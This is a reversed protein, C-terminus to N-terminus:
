LMSEIKCTVVVKDVLVNEAVGRTWYVSGCCSLVLQIAGVLTESLRSCEFECGDYVSSLMGCVLDASWVLENSLRKRGQRASCAQAFKIEGACEIKARM